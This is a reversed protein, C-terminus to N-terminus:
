EKDTESIPQEQGEGNEKQVLVQFSEIEESSLYRWKGPLLNNLGVTHVRTRILRLVKLGVKQAMKRIQRNMGETIILTFSREGIRKAQAPKTKKGDITMGARMKDLMSEMVLQDTFVTYEKEKENEASAAAYVFRGDNSLILLGESDKDLRGAYALDDMQPLDAFVTKGEDENRSTVVGAPKHYALYVYDTPFLSDCLVTDTDTDIVTGLETVTKGNVKVYGGTIYEEAKRRSAIGLDKLHKNLRVKM